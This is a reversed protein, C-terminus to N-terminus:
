SFWDYELNFHIDVKSVTHETKQRQSDTFIRVGENVQSSLREKTEQDSVLDHGNNCSLNDKGTKLIKANNYFNITFVPFLTM